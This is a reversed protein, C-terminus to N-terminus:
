LVLGFGGNLGFWGSRVAPQETGRNQLVGYGLEGGLEFVVPGAFASCSAAGLPWGWTAVTARGPIGLIGVRLGAGIRCTAFRKTAHASLYAGLSTSTVVVGEIKGTEFDTDMAWSVVRPHDAGVRVGGGGLTGRGGFFSRASGFGLMRLRVRQEEPPAAHPAGGKRMDDKPPDSQAGAADAAPAPAPSIPSPNPAPARGAAAQTASGHARSRAKARATALSDESPRPGEPEVNPQPNQELEAWSALVLESAAIAILRSEGRDGFSRSDFSRRVNKRSL